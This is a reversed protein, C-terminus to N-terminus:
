AAGREAKTKRHELVWEAGKPTTSYMRSESASVGFGTNRLKEAALFGRHCLYSLNNVASPGLERRIAMYSRSRVCFALVKEQIDGKM